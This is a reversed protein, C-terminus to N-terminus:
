SADRRAAAWAAGFSDAEGSDAETAWRWGIVPDHEDCPEWGESHRDCKNCGWASTGKRIASVHIATM